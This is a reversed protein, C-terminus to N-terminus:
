RSRAGLCEGYARLLKVMPIQFQRWEDAAGIVRSLREKRFGESFVSRTNTIVSFVVTQLINLQSLVVDVNGGVIAIVKMVAFKRDM